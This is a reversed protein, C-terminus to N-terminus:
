RWWGSIRAPANWQLPFASRSGCLGRSFPTSGATTGACSNAAYFGPPHLHQRGNTQPAQSADHTEFFASIWFSRESTGNFGSPSRISSPQSRNLYQRGDIHGVKSAKGTQIVTPIGANVWCATTETGTGGGFLTILVSNTDCYVYM